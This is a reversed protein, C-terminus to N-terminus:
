GGVEDRLYVTILSVIVRAFLVVVLGIIAYLITKKAKEKQEDEGQSVILRIGAIIVVVVAILALFNLVAALIDIVISRVDEPDSAEPLGGVDPTPGAFEQAFVSQAYSMAMLSATAFTNKIANVSKTM